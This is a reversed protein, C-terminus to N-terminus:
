KRNLQHSVHVHHANGSALQDSSNYVLGSSASNSQCSDSRERAPGVSAVHQLGDHSANIENTITLRFSRSHNFVPTRYVICIEKDALTSYSKSLVLKQLSLRPRQGASADTDTDTDHPM